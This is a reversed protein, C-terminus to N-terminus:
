DAGSYTGYYGNNMEIIYDGPLNGESTMKEFFEKILDVSDSYASPSLCDEIYALNEGIARFRDAAEKRKNLWNDGGM